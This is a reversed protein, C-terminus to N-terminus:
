YLPPLKAGESKTKGKWKGGEGGGLFFNYIEGKAGEM